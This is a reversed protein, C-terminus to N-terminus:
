SYKFERVMEYKLNFFSKHWEKDYYTWLVWGKKAVRLAVNYIIMKNAVEEAFEKIKPLVTYVHTINTKVQMLNIYDNSLVLLDFLNFFDNDRSVYFKGTFVSTRQAVQVKFGLNRYHKALENEANNGKQKKSVM